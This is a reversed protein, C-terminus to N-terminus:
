VDLSPIAIRIDADVEANDSLIASYGVYTPYHPYGCRHADAFIDAHGDRIQISLKKIIKYPHVKRWQQQWLESWIQDFEWWLMDM